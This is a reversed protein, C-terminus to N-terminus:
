KRELYEVWEHYEYIDIGETNAKVWEGICGKSKQWDGCLVLVDCEELM